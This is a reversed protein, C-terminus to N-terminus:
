PNIKKKNLLSQVKLYVLSNGNGDDPLAVIKALNCDFITFHGFILPFTPACWKMYIASLNCSFEVM